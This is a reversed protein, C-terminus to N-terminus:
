PGTNFPPSDSLNATPSGESLLRQLNVMDNDRCEQCSRQDSKENRWLHNGIFNPGTVSTSVSRMSLRLLQTVTLVAHSASYLRRRVGLGQSSHFCATATAM